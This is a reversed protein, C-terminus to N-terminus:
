SPEQLVLLTIQLLMTKKLLIPKYEDPLSRSWKAISVCFNACKSSICSIKPCIPNVHHSKAFNSDVDNRLLVAYDGCSSM